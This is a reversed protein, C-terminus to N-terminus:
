KPFIKLITGSFKERGNHNERGNRKWIADGKDTEVHMIEYNKKNLWKNM